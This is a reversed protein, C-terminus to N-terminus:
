PLYCDPNLVTGRLNRRCHGSPPIAAVFDISLVSIDHHNRRPNFRRDPSSRLRGGLVPSMRNACPAPPPRENGGRYKLSVPNRNRAGASGAFLDKPGAKMEGWIRIRRRSLLYEYEPVPQFPIESGAVGVPEARHDLTRVLRQQLWIPICGIPWQLRIEM